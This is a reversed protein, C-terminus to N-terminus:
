RTIILERRTISKEMDQIMKEQQKMLQSYRVQFYFKTFLVRYDLLKPIGRGKNFLQAFSLLLLAVNVPPTM